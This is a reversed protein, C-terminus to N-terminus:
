KTKKIKLNYILSYKNNRSNTVNEYYNTISISVFWILGYCLVACSYDYFYFCWGILHWWHWSFWDKGGHTAFVVRQQRRNALSWHWVRELRILSDLTPCARHLRAQAIFHMVKGWHLLTRSSWLLTVSKREGHIAWIGQSHEFPRGPLDYRSSRSGTIELVLLVWCHCSNAWSDGFTSLGVHCLTSCSVM